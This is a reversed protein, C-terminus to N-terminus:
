SKFERIHEREKTDVQNTAKEFPKEDFSACM